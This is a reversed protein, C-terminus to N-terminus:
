RDTRNRSNVAMLVLVGMICIAPGVAILAIHNGFMRQLSLSIVTGFLAIAALSGVVFWPSQGTFAMRIEAGSPRITDRRFRLLRLANATVLM